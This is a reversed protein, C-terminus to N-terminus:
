FKIFAKPLLKDVTYVKYDGNKNSCIIETDKSAFETIVQRCIGCPLIYDESDSAIAIAKIKMAGESVASFIATREACNTAGFSVNEVNVGTYLNGNETLLAAGVRFKSYPSYSNVKIENALKIMGQYDTDVM